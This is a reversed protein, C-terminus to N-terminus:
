LTGAKVALAIVRDQMSEGLAEMGTSHYAFGQHGHHALEQM